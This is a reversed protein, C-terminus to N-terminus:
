GNDEGKLENFNIFKYLYLQNLFKSVREYAPQIKEGYNKILEDSITLISKKGDIKLWTSSGFEDFKVKVYPSKLMTGITKALLKNHFRPILVAVIGNDEVEHQYIHFPTLELLNLGQLSKRKRFLSM